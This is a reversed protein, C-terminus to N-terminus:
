SGSGRSGGLADLLSAAYLRGVALTHGSSLRVQQRTYSAIRAAAVIFSRHVRLFRGEPLMAQLDKLLVRTTTVEGSTRFIRSYREVAEVYLIDDLPITVNSYEQKVVIAQPRPAEGEERPAAPPPTGIRRLAKAFATQFRAYAFPKHLYDVADLNFGEIAYELYATTFIVCVEPPLQSAISLGNATGMEIDLFLIAPRTRMVAELGEAPDSFTLLEVGGMRECFKEIVNLALPEDDIAICKVAKNTKDSIEM